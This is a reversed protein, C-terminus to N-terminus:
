FLNNAIEVRKITEEEGLLQISEFLPPTVSKGSITIRILQFMQTTNLGLKEALERFSREFDQASWPRSAKELTSKIESLFMPLQAKKDGVVQEFIVKEYEPKGFLFDTLPIFDSLKKIREKILPVVPAIKERAPHDVLFDQLRETLEEDSLKRIYEGNIWDLKQQNWASASSNMDKIDFKEILEAIDFIEKGEPHTWGLLALYNILSEPLYGDKKYEEVSTSGTRKSLKGQRDQNLIMPYHAYQPPTAGLAEFFLIQKPTNSIHDDGRIVQTIKMDWDDVVVAFNYLPIGNQRMIVMDGLLASDFKVTHHILDEYEVVGRDEPLKFRVVFPIGEKKKAEVEKITLNRCKGSYVQPLHAKAQNEREQELEEKTCFCFYAKDESILKDTVEQYLKLRDMQHFPGEDWEFGLWKLGNIINEEYEKTSRGRDTDEIRLVFEGGSGKKALVFPWLTAFATGLHLNGTPSPAMRTKVRM